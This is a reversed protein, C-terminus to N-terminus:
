WQDKSIHENKLYLIGYGYKNQERFEDELNLKIDSLWWQARSEISPTLLSQLGTLKQVLLWKPGQCM